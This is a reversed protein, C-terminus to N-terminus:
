PTIRTPDRPFMSAKRINSLKLFLMLVREMGVGGGAHPFAGYRMANVYDQLSDLDVGLRKARDLLMTADHIRQAGSLVEEGRIFIDYSNSWTPDEPDEMTYFPRVESPFKDIIYFDQGYMDHIIRGLVREDETTLDETM